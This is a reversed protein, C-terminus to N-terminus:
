ARRALRAVDAAIDEAARPTDHAACAASMAALREPDRFLSGVLEHLVVRRAGGVSSGGGGGSGIGGGDSGGASGGDSGGGGGGGSSSSSSSALHVERVMVAAGVSEMELANFTQHDEAVNPSPVLVSTYTYFNFKFAFAQSVLIDCKLTSPKFDPAQL